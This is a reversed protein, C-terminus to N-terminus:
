RPSPCDQDDSGQGCETPDSDEENHDRNKSMNLCDLSTGPAPAHVMMEAATAGIITSIGILAAVKVPVSAFM